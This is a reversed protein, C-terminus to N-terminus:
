STLSTGCEPCPRGQPLGALDYGCQACRGDTARHRSLARIAEALGALRMFLVPVGVVGTLCAAANLNFVLVRVQSQWVLSVPWGSERLWDFSVLGRSYGVFVLGGDVRVFLGPRTPQYVGHLDAASLVVFLCFTAVLIAMRWAAARRIAVARRLESERARNM